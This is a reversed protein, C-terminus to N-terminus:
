DLLDKYKPQAITIIQGQLKEYSKQGAICYSNNMMFVDHKFINKLKTFYDILFKDM